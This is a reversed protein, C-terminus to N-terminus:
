HKQESQPVTHVHILALAQEANRAAEPASAGEAIVYGTRQDSNEINRVCDGPKLPCTVEVVGPQEMATRVGEVTHVVGAPPALFRISAGRRRTPTIDPPEGLAIKIAARIMNIGTALPVLHSTICGGGLRAALEVLKPGHETLYWEAHGPCEHLEFAQAIQEMAETLAQQAAEPLTSPVAHGIEACFPPATTQKDTIAAVCTQGGFTLTEMSVERGRLLEEALLIGEVSYRLAYAYGSDLDEPSDVVIVGKSGSADTPKLVLPFTLKRPVEPLDERSRLLCWSPSYRPLTESLRQRTLRKNRCLWAIAPPLGRLGLRTAVEAAPVSSPDHAISLVGAVQHARALDTLANVDLPDVAEAIDARSLGPAKPNRDVAVVSLGMAQAELIAPVQFVGAPMILLRKRNSM